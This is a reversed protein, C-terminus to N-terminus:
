AWAKTMIWATWDAPQCGKDGPPHPVHAKAYAYAALSSCVAQVNVQGDVWKESWGPLRIGLDALGDAVISQWDYETGLLSEMWHAITEGQKTDIPQASNDITYRDKLYGTADKWGAGGPRGEICWTTGAKDVHHVVAVHNQLNPKNSIAAGFRIWWSGFGASRTCLVTGPKLAATM